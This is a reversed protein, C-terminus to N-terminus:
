AFHEPVSGAFGRAGERVSPPLLEECHDMIFVGRSYLQLGPKYDQSYFGDPVRSPIYLLATFDVNGEVNFFITKMPDTFDFFHQKYFTSLEEETVEAKPRKWLPVMSNLTKEEPVTRTEGDVEQTTEVTMRIPYRIYDSYKKVLDQVRYSQLYQSYDEQDDDAKLHLVLM